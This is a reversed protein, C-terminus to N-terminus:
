EVVLMKKSQPRTKPAKKKTRGRNWWILFGSVPLSAGFLGAALALFKGGMGFMRGTHLDFNSVRIKDATSFDRYLDQLLVKGSYQDFTFTNQKRVWQYPYRMVFRFTGASDKPLQISATAFDGYSDAIKFLSDVSCTHLGVPPVSQVKKKYTMPKGDLAYIAAPVSDFVWYVGTLTIPLLLWLMYFGWVKHLDYNIRKWSSWKVRFATKLQNRRTPFWLYLGSLLMILFILVNWRIIEAGIDGLMLNLHLQLAIGMLDRRTHYVGVIQGTFPDLCIAKRKDTLAIATANLPVQKMRLQVIKEAPYTKQVQSLLQSPQLRVSSKVQKVFLLDAKTYADYEEQFSYIAGTLSVILVVLGSGLGLWLHISGLVKKANMTM